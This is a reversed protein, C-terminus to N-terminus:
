GRQGTLWGILWVLVSDIGWLMMALIVVMIGVVITTQMTEERTPWVVKRLEIRSEWFFDLVWRGKQTTYAIFCVVSLLVVWAALRLAWSFDSYYYNAVIGALLLITVVLWKLKDYKFNAPQKTPLVVLNAKTKVNLRM